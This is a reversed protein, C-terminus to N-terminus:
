AKIKDRMEASFRGFTDQDFFVFQSGDSYSKLAENIMLSFSKDLSNIGWEGGEKKSLVLGGNIFALTRCANLIAYVPNNEMNEEFDGFDYLLSKLYMDKPVEGFVEGKDSGSFTIGRKNVVMFHAPLDPDTNVEAFDFDGSAYKEALEKGFHFEYPTPFVPNKTNGLTVVSMELGKEFHHKQNILIEALKKKEELSMGNKVVILFDVDSKLPNFCNMAVSGHIYLGVFNDKLITQTQESINKLLGVVEKNEIKYM